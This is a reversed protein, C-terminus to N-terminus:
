ALWHINLETNLPRVDAHSRSRSNANQLDFTHLCFAGFIVPFNLVHWM